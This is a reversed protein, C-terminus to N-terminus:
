LTKLVKGPSLEADFIGSYCGLMEVVPMKYWPDIASPCDYHLVAFASYPLAIWDAFGQPDALMAFSILNEVADALAGVM